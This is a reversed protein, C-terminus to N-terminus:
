RSSLKVGLDFVSQWLSQFTQEVKTVEESSQQKVSSLVSNLMKDLLDLQELATEDSVSQTASRQQQQQQEISTRLQRLIRPVYKGSAHLMRGTQRQFTILTVIHLMLAPESQTKIGNLNHDLEEMHNALVQSDDSASPNLKANKVLLAWTDMFEVLSKHKGSGATLKRMRNFLDVADQPLYETLLAADDSSIRFSQPGNSPSEGRSFQVKYLELLRGQAGQAEQSVKSSPSSPSGLRALDAFHLLVLDLLEICLSQLLHKSLSNKVATDEFVEVGKCSLDIRKSLTQVASLVSATVASEGSKEVAEMEPEDDESAQNLVASRNRDKLNQLLDRYLIGAMANVLAPDFDPELKKIEDKVDQVTLFDQLQKKKKMGVDKGGQAKSSRSSKRELAATAQDVLGKLHSHPEFTHDPMDMLEHDGFSLRWSILAKVKSDLLPAMRLLCKQLQGSTVVISDQVIITAQPSSGGFGTLSHDQDPALPIRSTPEVLSPLQRLLSALDDKTLPSPLLPKIDIWSLNSITDEVSADVISWINESVIHTELLFATPHNASIYAKPESVGRKKMADFEIFGNNRFFTEVWETQQQEYPRPVFIGQDGTGKIAGPLRPDKLLMDCLGSFLQDQVVRKSRLTQLSTPEQLQELSKLMKSMEQELFWPAIVLGRDVSDWQGPIDGGVRDRLFQRMFDIGFKHKRCMDAITLYAREKLEDKLQLAMKELYEVKLLEDQVQLITGTQSRVLETVREQIDSLNANLTKPLDLLSIRGNRKELQLAIEKRLQEHTIFSKGDLSAVVKVLYGLRVLSHVLDGCAEDSLSAPSKLDEPNNATGFLTKWLTTAM